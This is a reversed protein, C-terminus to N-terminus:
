EATCANEADSLIWEGEGPSLEATNRRYEDDGLAFDCIFGTEGLGKSKCVASNVPEADPCVKAYAAAFAETGPAPLTPTPEVVPTEVPAPEVPEESNCAALAFLAACVFLSRM